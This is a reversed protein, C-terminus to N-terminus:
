CTEGERWGKCVDVRGSFGPSYRGLEKSTEATNAADKKAPEATDLERFYARAKEISM